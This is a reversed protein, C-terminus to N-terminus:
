ELCATFDRQEILRMIAAYHADSEMGYDAEAIERLMSDDNHAIALQLLPEPSPKWRELDNSLM